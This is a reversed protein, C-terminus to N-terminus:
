FIHLLSNLLCRLLGVVRYRVAKRVCQTKVSHTTQLEVLKSASYKSQASQLSSFELFRHNKNLCRVIVIVNFFFSNTFTLFSIWCHTIFTFYSHTPTHRLTSYHASIQIDLLCSSNQVWSRSPHDLTKLCLKKCYCKSIYESM